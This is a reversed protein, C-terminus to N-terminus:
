KEMLMVVYRCYRRLFPARNLLAGDARRLVPLARGFGLGRELMSLFQIEEIQVMSFGKTWHGIDEYNLPRDAGRPNKHPYHVYERVFNLVPNMGMPESFAAKGKPKLLRHLHPHATAADLHHLVAKGFAIDFSADEYPLEEAPCVDFRIRDALGAAVAKDRAVQVSGESIDFATVNAGSRALLLSLSGLGCGMELVHKGQLDGLFESIGPMTSCRSAYSQFDDTAAVLSRTPSAKAAMADWKRREVEYVAALRSFEGGDAADATKTIGSEM